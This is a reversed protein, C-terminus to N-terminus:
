GEIEQKAWSQEAENLVSWSALSHPFQRLTKSARLFFYFKFFIHAKADVNPNTLASPIILPSKCNERVFNFCNLTYHLDIKRFM